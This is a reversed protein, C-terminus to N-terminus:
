KEVKLLPQKVKSMEKKAKKALKNLDNCVKSSEELKRINKRCNRSGCKCKMTPAWKPYIIAYDYTIEEGPKINKIVIDMKENLETVNPSCSHNCYNVKDKCHVLNGNEDEYVGIERKERDNLKEFQKRSYKVVSGKTNKWIITGKPIRVKSFLGKGDILSSKVVLNPHDM